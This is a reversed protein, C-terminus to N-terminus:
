DPPRKEILAMSPALDPDETALQESEWESFRELDNSVSNLTWALLSVDDIFGFSLIFDPILDIPMIFYVLSTVILVLSERSISRYEGRAYCKVLRFATKVPELIRSFRENTRLTNLARASSVLDILQAPSQLTATVM